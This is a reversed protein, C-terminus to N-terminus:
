KNLAKKIAGSLKMVSDRLKEQNITLVNRDQMLIKGSVITTVVDNSDVSYVLHSIVNYMPLLQVDDLSIQIMDARLGSKLQGTIKEFGIAKAGYVTAMQLAKYAPILTPDQGDVKHILAALRIEEWLDLDNNSAAGDTGLGVNIHNELMKPVPSIGAALKLNSTPNHIVSIQKDHLIRMEQEDLFVMHAGIVVLDDFLGQNDIHRVPTTQYNKLIMQNEAQSEAIHMTVPINQERAKKAVQKIHEPSVTYAAHPALAPTIREHRDKWRSVFEVGSEFSDDWGSFGPSPFDIMPAGVIARLGCKVVRDSIIDPYFYMDVFSTIGGRIMEWCALDTGVQIFNPDVFQAEMPFIYDNLWPMLELDDAMGRFLTMASHTHGNILGPMLIRNKGSLTQKATYKAQIELRSGVAIISEGNVAVAGDFIVPSSEIKEWPENPTMTVLYDGLIMLDVTQKEAAFAISTFLLPILLVVLKRMKQGQFLIM